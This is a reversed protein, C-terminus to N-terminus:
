HYFLLSFRLPRNESLKWSKEWMHLIKGNPFSRFQMFNRVSDCRCKMSCDEAVVQSKIFFTKRWELWHLLKQGGLEDQSSSFEFIRHIALFSLVDSRSM